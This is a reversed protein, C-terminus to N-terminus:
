ATKAAEAPPSTRHKRSEFEIENLDIGLVAAIKRAQHINPTSFGREWESVAQRTVGLPEALKQQSLGARRRAEALSMPM